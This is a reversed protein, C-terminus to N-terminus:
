ATEVLSEVWPARGVEVTVDLPLELDVGVRTSAVRVTVRTGGRAVWVGPVVRLVVVGGVLDVGGCIVREEAILRDTGNDV